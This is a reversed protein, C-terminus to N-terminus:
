MPIPPSLCHCFFQPVSVVPLPVEQAEVQDPAFGQGLAGIMQHRLDQGDGVVPPDQEGPPMRILAPAAKPGEPLKTLLRADGYRSQVQMRDVHIGPRFGCPHARAGGDIVAKHCEKVRRFLGDAELLAFCHIVFQQGVPRELLEQQLVPEHVHDAAAEQVALGAKVPDDCRM